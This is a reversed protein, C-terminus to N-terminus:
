RTGPSCMGPVCQLPDSRRVDAVEEGQFSGEMDGLKLPFNIM